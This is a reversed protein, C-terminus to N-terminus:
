SLTGARADASSQILQVLPTANKVSHRALAYERARGGCERRAVHDTLLRRVAQVLQEESEAHIGVSERGLVGDPDVHLSVVPVERMWSQIFTNPFGEHLSTNVFVHSLALLANVEDHSRPGLYELNPTEAISRMLGDSWARDGSGAAPAGVMLFRVSTLGRLANALRVFVEPQKWRKLNAIWVVQLAGSKDIPETPDPHFNPVILDADRGYNRRLLQEQEAKQVVIRDVRPIAYEIARKELFPRLPNRGEALAQPTVDSDHAVHWILPVRNRKAYYACIATYGGAVRQYIVDPALSRLARYLPVADMLYGLRPAHEGSGIRVVDYGPTAVGQRVHRALYFVDYRQLPVLAEILCQIQYEAGGGDLFPNVICLRQRAGTM